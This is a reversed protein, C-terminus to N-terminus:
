EIKNLTGPKIDRHIYGKDHMFSVVEVLQEFKAWAEERDLTKKDRIYDFLDGGAAYQMILCICEENEVIELLSVTHPHEVQSMAGAEKMAKRLSKDDVKDIVKLAVKTGSLSHKALFVRGGNGEGLLSQVEYPGVRIGDDSRNVKEFRIPIKPVVPIQMSRIAEEREKLSSLLSVSRAQKYSARSGVPRRGRRFVKTPNSQEM